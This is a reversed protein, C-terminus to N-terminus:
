LAEKASQRHPLWTLIFDNLKTRLPELTIREVLESAFAYTLLRSADEASLGRSRLYFIANAELRGITSGHACKVDNNLIELQPKTDISADGSLLLNKNTQIADTQRADKHVVIKGNFVGRAKGGLIGKYLERSMGHPTVHDIRTHNDLHQQAAAMYLGNLTCEAGEGELAANIDNRVLAGGFTFAHSVFRSSRAQQVQLTAIHFAASGEWGLKCHEAMANEGLVLETVANTLYAEDAPGLYTEIFTAQASEELVFLNRPHAVMREGGPQMLFILHIPRDVAVGRPVYVYAGDRMLATNLAVFAHEEVDAYRALYPELRPQRQTLATALGGVHLGRPLEPLSSLEPMYHGNVFILQVGSLQPAGAARLAETAAERSPRQGPHFPVRAIPAVNTYKWEEQRTTPFGLEAFRAMAAKRLPQTWGQGNEGIEQELRAFDTLYADKTAEMQMAEIM